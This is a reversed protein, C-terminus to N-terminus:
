YRRKGRKMREGRGRCLPVTIDILCASSASGPVELVGAQNPLAKEAQPSNTPSILELSVWLEQLLDMRARAGPLGLDAKEWTPVLWCKVFLKVSTTFSNKKQRSLWSLPGVGGVGVLPFKQCIPSLFCLVHSFCIWFQFITLIASSLPLFFVVSKSKHMM